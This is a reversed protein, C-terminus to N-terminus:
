KKGPKVAKVGTTNPNVINDGIAYGKFFCADMLGCIKNILTGFRSIKTPTEPDIGEIAKDVILKSNKRCFEAVDSLMMFDKNIEVGTEKLFEQKSIHKADPNKAKKQAVIDEAVDKAYNQAHQVRENMIKVYKAGNYITGIAGGIILANAAVMLVDLKGDVSKCSGAVMKSISTKISGWSSRLLNFFKKFPNSVGVQADAPLQKNKSSPGFFKEKIRTFIEVVKNWLRKILGEKNGSDKQDEAEVYAIFDEDSASESFCQLEIERMRLEHMQEAAELGLILKEAQIELSEFIPDREYNGYELYPFDLTLIDM